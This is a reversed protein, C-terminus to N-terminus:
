LVYICVGRVCDSVGVVAAGGEAEAACIVGDEGAVRAGCATVADVRAELPFYEGDFVAATTGVEM